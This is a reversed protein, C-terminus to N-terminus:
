GTRHELAARLRALLAPDKLGPAREVGSNVDVVRAGTAAIAAAINDPGLGGALVWTRDRHATSLRRFEAWDGTRGTGGYQSPSYADLLWTHALPLWAPDLATGPALRPALWLREPGVAASWQAARAAAAPSFHLQLRDFGAAQGAAVAAATPEVMVAVKLGDPLRPRMAAFQELPVFRPSAPHLIFGFFDAGIAAAADADVLSTLGCVKLRIGSIV